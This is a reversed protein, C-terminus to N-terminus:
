RSTKRLALPQIASPDCSRTWVSGSNDTLLLTAGWQQLKVRRAEESIRGKFCATELAMGSCAPPDRRTGATALVVATRASRPVASLHVTGKLVSCFSAAHREGLVFVGPGPLWVVDCGSERAQSEGAQAQAYFGTESLRWLRKARVTFLRDMLWWCEWM